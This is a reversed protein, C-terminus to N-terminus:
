RKSPTMIGMIITLIDCRANLMKNPDGNATSSAAAVRGPILVFCSMIGYFCREKFM